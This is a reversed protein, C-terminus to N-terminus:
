EGIADIRDAYRELVLQSFSEIARLPEKLDHSTVYLLTELDKNKNILVTEAKKRETIDRNTELVIRRGDQETYSWRSEVVVKRRDKTRQLLEGTWEGSADRKTMIDDLSGPFVTTLLDHCRRSMAEARTFGYLRECGQNWEIIGDNVDWSFIPEHSLEILQSKQRLAATRERVQRELDRFLRAGCRRRAAASPSM